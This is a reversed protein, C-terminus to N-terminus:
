RTTRSRSFGVTGYLPASAVEQWSLSVGSRLKNLEFVARVCYGLRLGGWVACPSLQLLPLQAPIQVVGQYELWDRLITCRHFGFRTPPQMYMWFSSAHTNILYVDPM